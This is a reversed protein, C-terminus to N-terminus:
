KEDKKQAVEDDGGGGGPAYENMWKQALTEVQSIM